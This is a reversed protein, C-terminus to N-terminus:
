KKNLSEASALLCASTMASADHRNSRPTLEIVDLSLRMDRGNLPDLDADVREHRRQLAAARGLGIVGLDIGVREAIQHPLAARIFFDLNVAAFGHQPVLLENLRLDVLGGAM